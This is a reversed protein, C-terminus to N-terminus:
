DLTWMIDQEESDTTEMKQGEDAKGSTFAEKKDMENKDEKSGEEEEKCKPQM